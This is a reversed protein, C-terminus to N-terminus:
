RPKMRLVVSGKSASVVSIVVGNAKVQAGPHATIKANGSSGAAPGVVMTQCRPDGECNFDFAGSSPLGVEFSIADGELSTVRITSVELKEEDMPITVRRTVKVECTGDKCARLNTGDAPPAPSPPPAPPTTPATKKATPSGSASAAGDDDGGCGALGLAAAAALGAAAHLRFGARPRAM